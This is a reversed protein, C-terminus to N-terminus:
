LVYEDEAHEWMVDMTGAGVEMEVDEISGAEQGRGCLSRFQCLRCKWVDQTLPWVEEGVHRNPQHLADLEAFLAGLRQHDAEFREASFEFREAPEPAIAFWYVLTVDEPQIPYGLLREACVVLMLPYLVTQLRRDLQARSPRTHTTKWDVIMVRGGEEYAVLDFTATVRRGHVLASTQVEPRRVEGPLDAPQHRLFADWWVSLAPEVHDVPLGLWYREILRHFQRGRADAREIETLPEATPAPWPQQQLYRLQFRRQCDAFDQLSSASFQFAPPFTTM